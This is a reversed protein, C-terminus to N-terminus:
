SSFYNKEPSHWLVHFRLEGILSWVRQEWRLHFHLTKVVPSGPFGGWFSNKLFSGLLYRAKDLVKVLFPICKLKNHDIALFPCLNMGNSYVHRWESHNQLKEMWLYLINRWVGCDRGHSPWPVQKSQHSMLVCSELLSKRFYESILAVRGSTVLHFLGASGM